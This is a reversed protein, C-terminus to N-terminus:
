LEAVVQIGLKMSESTEVLADLVDRAVQRDCLHDCHVFGYSEISISCAISGDVGYNHLGLDADYRLFHPLSTLLSHVVDDPPCGDDLTVSHEIGHSVDIVLLPLNKRCRRQSAM